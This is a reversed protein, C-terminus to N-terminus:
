SVQYLPHVHEEFSRVAARLAVLGGSIIAVGGCRDVLNDRITGLLVSPIPQEPLSRFTHAYVKEYETLAGLPTRVYRNLVPEALLSDQVMGQVAGFRSLYSDPSMHVAGGRGLLMALGVPQNAQATHLTTALHHLDHVYHNGPRIWLPAYQEAQMPVM